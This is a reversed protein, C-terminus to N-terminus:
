LELVTQINCYDQHECEKKLKELSKLLEKRILSGGPLNCAQWMIIDYEKQTIVMWKILLEKAINRFNMAALGYQDSIENEFNYNPNM